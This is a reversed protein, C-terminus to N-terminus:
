KIILQTETSDLVNDAKVTYTGPIIDQPITWFVECKFESTTNCNLDDIVIQNKDTIQIQISSKYTSQIIIKVNTGIGPMSTTEGIKVGLGEVIKTNVQFENTVLNSGSSAQIKWLGIEANQPIKFRDESFIGSSDSPIEVTRIKDGSPNILIVKLLVNPNTKGLLLIKDGQTYELQTTKIDIKGSGM